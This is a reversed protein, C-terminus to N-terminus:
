NDSQFGKSSSQLSTQETKALAGAASLLDKINEALIRYGAPNLHIPDSKYESRSLLEPLTDLDCPIAQKEAIERYLEASRLLFLSPSPVGLMIVDIHRKRAADIMDNLHTITETASINRIMDNGGHILILLNPRYEDLLAPLRQAGQRTIEGPQGENIVERAILESLVSPYDEGNAAGTGYTLSDGFALIVANQPLEALQPTPDSCAVSLLALGLLIIKNM